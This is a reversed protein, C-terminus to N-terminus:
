HQKSLIRRILEVGVRREGLVLAGRCGDARADELVPGDMTPREVALLAIRLIPEDAYTKASQATGASMQAILPALSSCCFSAISM